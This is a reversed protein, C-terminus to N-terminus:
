MIKITTSQSDKNKNKRVWMGPFYEGTATFEGLIREDGEVSAEEDSCEEVEDQHHLPPSRARELIVYFNQHSPTTTDSSGGDM